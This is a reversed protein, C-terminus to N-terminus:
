SRGIRKRSARIVKMAEQVHDPSAVKFRTYGPRDEKLELSSTFRDPRGRVTISLAQAQPQVIVYWFNDPTNKFNYRQGRELDGPYESRVTQLLLRAAQRPADNLDGVLRLFETDGPGYSRKDAVAAPKGDSTVSSARAEPLARAGVIIAESTTGVNLPIAEMPDFQLTGGTESFHPNTLLIVSRQGKSTRCSGLGQVEHPSLPALWLDPGLQRVEDVVLKMAM